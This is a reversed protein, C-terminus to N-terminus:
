ACEVRNSALRGADSKLLEDFVAPNVRSSDFLNHLLGPFLDLLSHDLGSLLDKIFEPKVVDM